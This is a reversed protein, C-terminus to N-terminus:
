VWIELGALRIGDKILDLMRDTQGTLYLYMPSLPIATLDLSPFSINTSVDPKDYSIRISINLFKGLFPFKKLLLYQDSLICFACARLQYYTINCSRTHKSVSLLFCIPESQCFFWITKPNIKEIMPNISRLYFSKPTTFSHSSIPSPSCTIKDSLFLLIVICDLSIIM